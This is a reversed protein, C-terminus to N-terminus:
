GALAIGCHLYLLPSDSAGSHGIPAIATRGATNSLLASM